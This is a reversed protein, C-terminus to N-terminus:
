SSAAPRSARPQSDYRFFVSDEKFADQYIIEGHYNTATQFLYAQIALTVGVVDWQGKKLGEDICYKMNKGAGFYLLRWIGGARDATLGNYGQKDWDNNNDITGNTVVSRAHWFQIYSGIWVGDVAVGGTGREGGGFPINALIGPLVSTPDPNQPTDPDSNIDLYKKCSIITTLFLLAILIKKM